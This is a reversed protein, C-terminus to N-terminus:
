KEANRVEKELEFLQKRLETIRADLRGITSEKTKQIIGIETERLNNIFEKFQAQEEERSKRDESDRITITKELKAMVNDEIEKRISEIQTERYTKLEDDIETSLMDRKQNTESIMKLTSESRLSEIEEELKSKNKTFVQLSEAEMLKYKEEFATKKDKIINEIKDLEKKRLEEHELLIGSRVKELNEKMKSVRDLYDANFIEINEKIKNTSDAIAMDTQTSFSALIDAKEMRLNNIKIQEDNYRSNCSKIAVEQQACLKDYEENMKNEIVKKYEVLSQDHLKQQSTLANVIETKKTHQYTELGTDIEHQKKVFYEQLQSDTKSRYNISHEDVIKRIKSYESERFEEMNLLIKKKEDVIGLNFNMLDDKIAKKEVELYGQLGTKLTEKEANVENNLQEMRTNKLRIMELDLEVTKTAFDNNLESVRMKMQDEFCAFESQVIDRKERLIKNLEYEQIKIKDEFDAFDTELAAKKEIFIKNLESINNKIEENNALISTQLFEEESILKQKIDALSDEIKAIKQKKYEDCSEDIKSLFLENKERLAQEENKLETIQTNIMTIDNNLAQVELAHSKNLEVKKNNYIKISESIMLKIEQQNEERKLTMEQLLKGTMTERMSTIENNIKQVMKENHTSIAIDIEEFKKSKYEEIILSQSSELKKKFEGEQRVLNDNLSKKKLEFESEYMINFKKELEEKLIRTLEIEDKELKENLTDTKVKLENKYFDDLEKEITSKTHEILEGQINEVEISLSRNYLDMLIDYQKLENNFVNGLRILADKISTDLSEKSFNLDTELLPQKKIFTIKFNKSFYYTFPYSRETNKNKHLHYAPIIDGFNYIKYNKRVFDMIFMNECGPIGLYIDASVEPFGKFIWVDSSACNTIVKGTKIFDEMTVSNDHIEHRSITVLEDKDLGRIIDLKEYSLVIDSNLLININKSSAPILKIIDSYKTRWSKKTNTVSIKPNFAIEPSLKLESGELLINIKSIAPNKLNFDLARLNEDNRSSNYLSTWLEINTAQNFNKIVYSKDSFYVDPIPYSKWFAIHRKFINLCEADM